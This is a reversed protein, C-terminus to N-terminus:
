PNNAAEGLRELEEIDDYLTVLKDQINQVM